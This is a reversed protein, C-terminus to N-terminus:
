RRGPAGSDTKKSMNTYQRFQMKSKKKFYGDENGDVQRGKTTGFNQLGMIKAIMVSEADLDINAHDITSVSPRPAPPPSGPKKAGGGAAAPPAEDGGAPPARERDRGTPEEDRRRRDKDSAAADRQRRDREADPDRRDDRAM